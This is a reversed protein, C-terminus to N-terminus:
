LVLKVLAVEVELVEELNLSLAWELTVALELVPLVLELVLEALELVLAVELVLLTSAHVDARADAESSTLEWKLM